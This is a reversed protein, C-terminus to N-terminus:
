VKEKLLRDTVIVVHRRQFYVLHKGASKHLEHELPALRHDNDVYVIDGVEIDELPELHPEGDKLTSLNIGYDSYIPTGDSEELRYNVKKGKYLVKAQRKHFRHRPNAQGHADVGLLIGAESPKMRREIQEAIIYGNVPYLSGDKLVKCYFADYHIFIYVDQDIRFANMVEPASYGEMALRYGGLADVVKLYYMIVRDNAELEIETEWEPTGVETLRDCVKIVTGTVPAHEGINGINIPIFLKAEDKTGRNIIVEDNGRDLRVLVYDYPIEIQDLYSIDHNKM